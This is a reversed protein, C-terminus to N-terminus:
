KDTFEPAAWRSRRRATHHPTGLEAIEESQRQCLRSLAATQRLNDAAVNELPAGQTLHLGTKNQSRGLSHM